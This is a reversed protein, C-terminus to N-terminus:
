LTGIAARDDPSVRSLLDLQADVSPAEAMVRQFADTTVCFGDPVLVGDLRSLEGLHAGKGGVDAVNTSDIQKFGMVYRLETAGREDIRIAVAATHLLKQRRM